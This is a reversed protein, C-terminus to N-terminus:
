LSVRADHCRQQLGRKEALTKQNSRPGDGTTGEMYRQTSIVRCGPPMMMIRGRQRGKCSAGRGELLYTRENHCNKLNGPHQQIHKGRERMLNAREREDFKHMTYRFEVSQLFYLNHKPRHHREQARGRSQRVSRKSGRLGRSM